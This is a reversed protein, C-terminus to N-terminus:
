KDDRKERVVRGCMVADQVGEPAQWNEEGLWEGCLAPDEVGKAVANDKRKKKKGQVVCACEGCVASDEFGKAVALTILM